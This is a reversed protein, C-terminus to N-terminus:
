MSTNKYSQLQINNPKTSTMAASLSRLLDGFKLNDMNKGLLELLHFDGIQANELVTLLETESVVKGKIQLIQKRCTTSSITLIRTVFSTASITALLLLWFWLLIFIKENLINLALVCLADNKQISGGPGFFHWECKTLRPFLKIMPDTRNEPSIGPFNVVDLGYTLFAGGLFLNLLFINLFVNAVNLFEAFYYKLAYQDHKHFTKVLYNVLYKENEKQEEVKQKPNTIGSLLLGVKGGEWTKWLWRPLFFSIAQFVLFFPVYQYYTRYTEQDVGKVHLGIGHYPVTYGVRADYHKKVSFTTHIWCYQNIVDGFENIQDLMCEMPNGIIQNTTILISMCVLLPATVKYHLKFVTNDIVRSSDPKIKFFAGIGFVAEM